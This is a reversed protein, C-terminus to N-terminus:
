YIQRMSLLHRPRQPLETAKGQYLDAIEDVKSAYVLLQELQDYGDDGAEIEYSIGGSYGNRKARKGMGTMAM